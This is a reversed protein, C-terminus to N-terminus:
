YIKALLAVVVGGHPEAREADVVVGPRLLDDRQLAVGGGAARREARQGIGIWRRRPVVATARGRRRLTVAFFVFEPIFPVAAAAIPKSRGLVASRGGSRGSRGFFAAAGRFSRRLHAGNEIRESKTEGVVLNAPNAAGIQAHININSDNNTKKTRWIYAAVSLFVRMRDM